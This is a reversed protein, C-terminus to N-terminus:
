QDSQVKDVLQPDCACRFGINSAGSDDARAQRAPCRYNVCFDDACLFSGGKTVHKSVFPEQPDYSTEAGKPNVVLPKTARLAYYGAHYKDQTWEWVNGIMDYLGYANAPYKRVPAATTYGDSGADYSPFMGQFSNAMYSGDLQLADGWPYMQEETGGKAAFEWEAETPLRKGAWKCFASADAFAIHVVPFSDLGQVSSGPGKPHRWNAGPTWRWWQAIDHLSRIGAQPNFVLSGPVLISDHPRKVEPPLQRKLDQWAIEREAITRYGTDTVFEEFQKNTVETQDIWFGDVRVKHSPREHVYAGPDDTGMVFTGGEVWVMGPVETKPNFAISEGSTMHHSDDQRDARCGPLGLGCIGLGFGVCKLFIRVIGM